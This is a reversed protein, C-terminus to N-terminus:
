HSLNGYFGHSAATELLRNMCDYLLAREKKQAYTDILHVMDGLLEGQEFDRYVILEEVRMM